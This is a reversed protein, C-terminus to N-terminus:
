SASAAPQISNAFRAAICHPGGHRRPTEGFLFTSVGLPLVGSLVVFPIHVGSIQLGVRPVPAGSSFPAPVGSPPVLVNSSFPVPVGSSPVLVNSSFPVPVGSLLLGVFPLRFASLRPSLSFALPIDGVVLPIDCVFHAAVYFGALCPLDPVLRM